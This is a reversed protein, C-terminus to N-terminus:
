PNKDWDNRVSNSNAVVIQGSFVMLTGGKNSLETESSTKKKRQMIFVKALKWSGAVEEM